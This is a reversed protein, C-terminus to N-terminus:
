ATGGRQQEAFRHGPGLPRVVVDVLPSHPVYPRDDIRGPMCGDTASGDVVCVACLIRDQWLALGELVSRLALPSRPPYPLNATLLRQTGRKLEITLRQGRTCLTAEWCHTEM